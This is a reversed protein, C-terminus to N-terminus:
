GLPMGVVYYIGYLYIGLANMMDPLWRQLTVSGVLLLSVILAYETSAQGGRGDLAERLRIWAGQFDM